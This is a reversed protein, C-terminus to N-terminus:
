QNISLTPVVQEVLSRIQMLWAADNLQIVKYIARKLKVANLNFDPHRQGNRRMNFYAEPHIINGKLDLIHLEPVLLEEITINGLTEADVVLQNTNQDVFATFASTKLFIKFFENYEIRQTKSGIVLVLKVKYSCGDENLSAEYEAAAGSLMGSSINKNIDALALELKILNEANIIAQDGQSGIINLKEASLDSPTVSVVFPNEAFMVPTVQLRDDKVSELIAADSDKPFAFFLKNKKIQIQMNEQSTSM